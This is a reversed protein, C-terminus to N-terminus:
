WLVSCVDTSQVVPNPQGAAVILEIMEPFYLYISGAAPLASCTEALVAATILM